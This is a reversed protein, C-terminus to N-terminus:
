KAPTGLFFLGCATAYVENADIGGKGKWSGDPQQDKVLKAAGDRYWALEDRGAKFTQRGTARGLEATTFWLYPESKTGEVRGNVIMKMGADLPADINAGQDHEAALRLGLLGALTMSRSSRPTGPSGPTYAWGGDELQTRTYMERVDAWLKADVKAGAKAAAHLAVVAFHTNSSDAFNGPAPYSWGALKEGGRVATKALWDACAQVEAAYKKADARALVQAQLGVVYTKQQPLKALFAAANAVAPDDPRVGAELLSLAALGTMGGEM